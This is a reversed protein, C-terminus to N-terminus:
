LNILERENKILSRYVEINQRINELKDKLYRIQYEQIEIQEMYARLHGEAIKNIIVTPTKEERLRILELGMKHRYEKQSSALSINKNLIEETIEEKQKICQMLSKILDQLEM